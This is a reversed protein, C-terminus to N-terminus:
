VTTTDWSNVPTTDCHKGYDPCPAKLSESACSVLLSSLCMTILLAINKLSYTKIYNLIENSIKSTEMENCTSVTYSSTPITYIKYFKMTEGTKHKQPKILNQPRQVTM